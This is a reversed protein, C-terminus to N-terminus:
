TGEFWRSAIATWAEISENSAGSEVLSEAILRPTERILEELTCRGVAFSEALLEAVGSTIRIMSNSQDQVTKTIGTRDISGMNGPPLIALHGREVGADRVDEGLTHVTSEDGPLQKVECGIFLEGDLLVRVDLRVPDTTTRIKTDFGVARYVAAVVSLGTAGSEVNAALFAEVTEVLESLKPLRSPEGSLALTAKNTKISRARIFAALADLAAPSDLKAVDPLWKIIIQIWPQHDKRVGRLVDNWRRANIWTKSNIPDRDSKSGIDFGFDRRNEALVTAASRLSFAGASGEQAQIVIPDIRDNAARALLVAGFAAIASKTPCEDLQTARALWVDPLVANSNARLYAKELTSELQQGNMEIPVACDYPPTRVLM